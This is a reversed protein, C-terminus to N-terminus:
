RFVCVCACVCVHKEHRRCVCVCVQVRVRVICANARGTSTHGLFHREVERQGSGASFICPFIFELGMAFKLEIYTGLWTRPSSFSSSRSKKKDRNKKDKKSRKKSIRESSFSSRSSSSKRDKRDAVKRKLVGPRLAESANEDESCDDPAIGQGMQALKETKMGLKQVLFTALKMVDTPDEQWAALQSGPNGDCQM